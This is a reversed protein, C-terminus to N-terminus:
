LTNLFKLKRKEEGAWVLYTEDDLRKIHIGQKAKAESIVSDIGAGGSSLGHFSNALSASVKDYGCGGAYAIKKGRWKASWTWGWTYNRTAVLKVLQPSKEDAEEIAALFESRAQDMKSKSM